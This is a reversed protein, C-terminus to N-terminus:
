GGQIGCIDQLNWAFLSFLITHRGAAVTFLPISPLSNRETSPMMLSEGLVIPEISIWQQM